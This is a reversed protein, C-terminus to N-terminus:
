KMDVFAIYLKRHKAYYKKQLQRLIFIADTTGRSPCSGFQMQGINITGCIIGEVVIEIVKLVHDTFKLGRYNSQNLADGKGKFLSVIIRNSRDAPVKGDLMIANIWDAIIKSCIDPAAKLMEAAFGSPGALKGNKWRLSKLIDDPTIFQAPSTVPDVHLLNHSWLFEINLLEDYHQKWALKKSVADLSLNGNDSQIYKEGIVDQNETRM